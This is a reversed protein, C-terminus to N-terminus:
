QKEITDTDMGFDVSRKPKLDFDKDFQKEVRNGNGRIYTISATCSQYIIFIGTSILLVIAMAYEHPKVLYGQSDLLGFFNLIKKRV